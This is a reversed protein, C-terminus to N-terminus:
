VMGHQSDAQVMYKAEPSGPLPTEEKDRSAIESKHSKRHLSARTKARKLEQADIVGDNNEDVDVFTM